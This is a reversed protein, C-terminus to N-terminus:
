TATNSISNHNKNTIIIYINGKQTVFNLREKKKEKKKKEKRKELNSQM